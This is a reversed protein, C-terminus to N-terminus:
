GTMFPQLMPNMAAVMRAIKLWLLLTKMAALISVPRATADLTSLGAMM